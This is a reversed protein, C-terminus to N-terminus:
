RARKGGSSTAAAWIVLGFAIKNVFDALNYVVNLSNADVGGTLYGFVYGLPYIAWGVTVIMRMAGFATVLAKNGSKAAAKGAEGSFIEYLIYVWGAMGIIFGLTANIYGAEGLYGGVLMVVSGLLLRWFMGSNAKGVASLILYFEVMQLPVTILWDIYRYVTPSDGTAVWVERMYMYHIFAIGTVLGAVIVSTRWGAAVNGTELFFFATAALMGMSIVWFSIGVFDDQALMATEANAAGSLGMLAVTALAFLKLKKM